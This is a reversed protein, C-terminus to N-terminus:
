YQGYYEVIEKVNCIAERLEEATIPAGVDDHAGRNGLRRIRFSKQAIEKTFYGKTSLLREKESLSDKISDNEYCEVFSNVVEELIKRLATALFDPEVTDLDAKEWKAVKDRLKGLNEKKMKKTDCTFIDPSYKKKDWKRATYLADLAKAYLTKSSKNYAYQYCNGAMQYNTRTGRANEYCQGMMYVADSMGRQAARQYLDFARNYDRQSVLQYEYYCNALLYMAYASEERCGKELLNLCQENWDSLGDDVPFLYTYFNPHGDGIKTWVQDNRFCWRLYYLLANQDRTDLTYTNAIDWYFHLMEAALRRAKEEQLVGSLFCFVDAYICYVSNKKEIGLAQIMKNFESWVARSDEQVYPNYSKMWAVIKDAMPTYKQQAAEDQQEQMQIAKKDRNRTRVMSFCVGAIGITFLFGFPGFLFPALVAILGLTLYTKNEAIWKIIKDIAVCGGNIKKVNLFIRYDNM